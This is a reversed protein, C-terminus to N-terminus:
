CSCLMQWATPIHLIGLLGAHCEIPFKDYAQIDDENGCLFSIRPQRAVVADDVDDQDLTHSINIYFLFKAIASLDRTLQACLVELADFTVGHAQFRPKPDSLIM